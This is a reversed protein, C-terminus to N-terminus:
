IVKKLKNRRAEYVREKLNKIQGSLQKIAEPEIPLGYVTKIPTDSREDPHIFWNKSGDEEIVLTAPIDRRSGTVIFSGVEGVHIIKGKM